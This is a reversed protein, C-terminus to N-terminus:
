RRRQRNRSTWLGMGVLGCGILAATSPEPVTSFSQEIVSISGFIGGDSVVDIENEVRLNSYSRAFATFDIESGTAEAAGGNSFVELSNDILPMGAPVTFFDGLVSATAGLGHAVGNFYLAASIIRETNATVNFGLALRGSDEGGVLISGVLRFGAGGLQQDVVVQYDSLMPSLTDETLIDFTFEDFHLSGDPSDFSGGDVLEQMSFLTAYSPAVFGANVALAIALVLVQWSRSM